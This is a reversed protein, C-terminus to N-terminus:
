SLLRRCERVVKKLILDPSMDPRIVKVAPGLPRWQDISSGKFLAITNVGLMAALHTIGNDHGIYICASNLISLLEEKEPCFFIEVNHEEAIKSFATGIDEEAPGLLLCTDRARSFGEMKIASLLDYWFDPSYNKGKSGSGPHLVIKEGFIRHAQMVPKKLADDFASRCDIPIGASQLACAMYLAVHIKSEPEPFPRFFDIRSEPMLYRLNESVINDPDAIFAAVCDAVPLKLGGKMEGTFLRHWGGREIDICLNVFPELYGIGPQRGLITIVHKKNLADILPMLMLTDGLAGARIILLSMTKKFSM